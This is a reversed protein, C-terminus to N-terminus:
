LAKPTSVSAWAQDSLDITFEKGSDDILSAKRGDSGTVKAFYPENGSLVMIRSGSVIPYVVNDFM